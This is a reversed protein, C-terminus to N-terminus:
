VHARGIESVIMNTTIAVKRGGFLTHIQVEGTVELTIQHRTQNIGASTFASIFESHAYGFGVVGVRFRPGFGGFVEPLIASGLPIYLETSLMQNAAASVTREIEARLRNALIGDTRLATVANSTDRELVVLQAYEERNQYVNDLVADYMAYAITQQAANAAYELITPRLWALVGWGLVIILAVCLLLRLRRTAGRM